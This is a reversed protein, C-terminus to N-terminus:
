KIQTEAPVHIIWDVQGYVDKGSVGLIKKFISTGRDTLKRFNTSIDVHNGSHKVKIDMHRNADEAADVSVADVTKVAEIIVWGDLDSNVIQVNGLEYALSVVADPGTEVIKQFEFKFEKAQVSSAFPVCMMALGACLGLIAVLGKFPLHKSTRSSKRSCNM